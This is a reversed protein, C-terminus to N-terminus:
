TQPWNHDLVMLGIAAYNLLDKFSDALSENSPEAGSALLHQIRALKDYMRVQLGNLPGGPAGAINGPGYDHHKRVLLQHADDYYQRAVDAFEDLRADAAPVRIIGSSDSM